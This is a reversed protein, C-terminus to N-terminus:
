DKGLVYPSTETGDGSVVYVGENMEIVPRIGFCYENTADEDQSGRFVYLNVNDFETAIWYNTGTNRIEYTTNESEDYTMLHVNKIYGKNDLEVDRYMDWNRVNITTVTDALKKYNENNDKVQGTLLYLARYTGDGERCYSFSEPTGAHILKRVYKKGNEEYSDLIIWGDYKPMIIDQGHFAGFRTM